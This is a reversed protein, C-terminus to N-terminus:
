NAPPYALDLIKIAVVQGETDNAGWDAYAELAKEIM